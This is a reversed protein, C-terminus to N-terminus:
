KSNNNYYKKWKTEKYAETSIFKLMIKFVDTPVFGPINTIKDKNSKLFWLNPTGQVGYLVALDRVNKIKKNDSEIKSNEMLNIKIPIFNTNILDIIKKNSFNEEEMKKCYHCTTTYFYLLIDKNTKESIKIGNNYNKWNIGNDVGYSFNFLVIFIFILYVLKKM